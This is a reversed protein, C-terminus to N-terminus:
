MASQTVMKEWKFGSRTDKLYVLYGSRLMDLAESGSSNSEEM